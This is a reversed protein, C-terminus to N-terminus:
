NPFLYDKVKDAIEVKDINDFYGDDNDDPEQEPERRM